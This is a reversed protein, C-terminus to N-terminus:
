EYKEIKITRHVFLTLKAITNKLSNPQQLNTQKNLSTEMRSNKRRKNQVSIEWKISGNVNNLTQTKGTFMQTKIQM